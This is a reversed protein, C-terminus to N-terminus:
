KKAEDIEKTYIIDSKNIELLGSLVYNDLVAVDLDKFCKKQIFDCVIHKKNKLELSFVQNHLILGFICKKKPLVSMKEELDAISGLRSVKFNDRFIDININKRVVRHVPLICLGDSELPTFYTMIYNYSKDKNYDKDQEQMIKRYMSGVEYRHHGDAILIQSKKIKETIAKVKEKDTFRWICNRIGQEDKLSIDPEKKSIYKNFVRRFTNGKDSFVTFIPTLNARVNKIMELRDMKPAHHTNEHPFAVGKDSMKMLAIFGFRSFEKGNVIFDQRYFYLADETDNKLIDIKLWENFFLASRTYRNNEKNDKPEHKNLILRIFNYPSQRYYFDQEQESIVDYPPCTVRSPDIIKQLNYSIAKFPKIIVM